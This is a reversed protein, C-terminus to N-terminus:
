PDDRFRASGAPGLAAEDSDRGSYLGKVSQARIFDLMERRVAKNSNPIYPYQMM